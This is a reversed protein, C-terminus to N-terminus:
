SYMFLCPGYLTGCSIQLTVISVTALPPFLYIKPPSSFSFKTSRILRLVVEQQLLQQILRQMGTNKM